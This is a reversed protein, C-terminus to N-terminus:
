WLINRDHLLASGRSGLGPAWPLQKPKTRGLGLRPVRWFAVRVGGIGEDCLKTTLERFFIRDERCFIGLDCLKAVAVRLLSLPLSAQVGLETCGRDPTKIEPGRTNTHGFFDRADEDRQNLGPEM